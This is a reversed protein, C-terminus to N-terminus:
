EEARPVARSFRLGNPPVFEKLRKAGSAQTDYDKMALGVIFSPLPGDARACCQILRIVLDSM